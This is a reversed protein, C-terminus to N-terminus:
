AAEKSVDIGGTVAATILARRYERLKEISLAFVSLVADDKALADTIHEVILRQEEVPPALTRMSFFEQPYLRLRSSWIGKSWRNIEAVYLPTRYLLDFYRPHHEQPRRLRYVNYSPSVIGAVQSVGLAGMWAWMTNVALDDIACRKYGEMTEALFMNVDSKESRPTVGTIHSVTLLEEDGKTSREGAERWFVRSREVRWHSPVGGLGVIGSEKMSVKPDLGKTVAQTILSQRKEQLLEILREKKAILADAAAIKRDLFSAIRIQAERPPAPIRISRIKEQSINPQGGGSALQIVHERFGLLWYYVFRSELFTGRGLACCAQNMCASIGLIGLRGITAGYMAILLTGPPFLKLASHERLARSTVKKTTDTIVTERLESTTVWPVDGDYYAPNETDPTTGSGVASFGHAVKYTEWEDGVEPIWVIGTSKM